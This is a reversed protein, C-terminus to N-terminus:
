TGVIFKAKFLAAIEELYRKGEVNELMFTPLSDLGHIGAMIGTCISAVSDVDGGLNVAKKLADFTDIANKLVFLVCGTTYKSDSPVGHIGPLFYPRKIPQEGCLIEFEAEGVDDYNGLANVQHLYTKYEENLNVTELCYDIIKKPDGQKVLVYFASRAICQSSLVANINPHTANANIEAYKNIVDEQLLGLPIARMAPANGPNPRNRQFDRIQEITMEGSYYWSMSGHGNRGYGKKEIGLDYEEKWAKVLLDITFEQDSLLAKMVGITM